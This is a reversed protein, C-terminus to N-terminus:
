TEIEGVVNSSSVLDARPLGTHSVGGNNWARCFNGLDRLGEAPTSYGQTSWIIAAGSRSRVTYNGGRGSRKWVICYLAPLCSLGSGAKPAPKFLAMAARIFRVLAM